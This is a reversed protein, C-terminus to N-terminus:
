TRRTPWRNPRLKARHLTYTGHGFDHYLAVGPMAGGLQQGNAFIIPDGFEQPDSTRVFWVRATGPAPAAVQAYSQLGSGPPACSSFLFACLGLLSLAVLKCKRIM